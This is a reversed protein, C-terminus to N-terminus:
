FNANWFAWFPKGFSWFTVMAKWAGLHAITVGGDKGKEGWDGWGRHQSKTVHVVGPADRIWRTQTIKTGNEGWFFHHIKPLIPPPATCSPCSPSYATDQRRGRTGHRLPTAVTRAAMGTTWETCAISSISGSCGSWTIPVSLLLPSLRMALKQSNKHQTTSWMVCMQVNIRCACIWVCMKIWVYLIHQHANHTSSKCFSAFILM